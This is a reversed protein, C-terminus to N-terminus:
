ARAPLHLRRPRADHPRAGARAAAARDARRLQLLAVVDGRDVLFALAFATLRALDLPLEATTAGTVVISEGLAIIVFLQFREAFHSTEVEWATPTSGHRGPVWYTVLPAVYDIVLAVLWLAIRAPGAALGGALWFVGSAVFWTPDAGCSGSSRGM